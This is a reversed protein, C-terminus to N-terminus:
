KENEINNEKNIKNEPIIEELNIKNNEKKDSKEEKKKEKKAKKDSDNKDGNSDEKYDEDFEKKFIKYFIANQNQLTNRDRFYIKNNIVGFNEEYNNFEQFDGMKICERFLASKKVFLDNQIKNINANNIIENSYNSEELMQGIKEKDVFINYIKNKEFDKNFNEMELKDNNGEQKEGSNLYDSNYKLEFTISKIIEKFEDILLDDDDIQGYYLNNLKNMREVPKRIEEQIYLLLIFTIILYIVGALLLFLSLTLIKNEGIEKIKSLLDNLSQENIIILHLKLNYIPYFYDTEYIIQLPSYAKLAKCDKNNILSINYISKHFSTEKEQIMKRELTRYFEFVSSYYQSSEKMINRFLNFDNILQDYTTFDEYKDYGDLKELKEKKDFCHDLYKYEGNNNNDKEKGLYLLNQCSEEEILEYPFLYNTRLLNIDNNNYKYDLEKNPENETNQVGILLFIKQISNEIDNFNIDVFENGQKKPLIMFSIKNIKIDPNNTLDFINETLGKLDNNDTYNDDDYYPLLFLNNYYDIEHPLIQKLMTFDKIKQLIKNKTYESIKTQYFEKKIQDKYGPYFFNVKKVYDCVFFLHMHNKNNNNFINQLYIGIYSFLKKELPELDKEDNNENFFYYMNSENIKVGDDLKELNFDQTKLVDSFFNNDYNSFEKYLNVISQLNDKYFNETNLEINELNNEFNDLEQFEDLDYLKSIEKYIFSYTNYIILIMLGITILVLVISFILLCKIQFSIDPCCKCCKCCNKKAM